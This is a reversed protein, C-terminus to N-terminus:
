QLVFRFMRENNASRVTIFYMGRQYADMNIATVENGNIANEAAMVQRGNVDTVIYSLTETAGENSIFLIGSTPNPYINLANFVNETVGSTCVTVTVLVNSTDNPCIGNGTIYDYNFQGPINGAVVTNGTIAQNSPNYWTGGLDVTGALGDLLNFAQGTCVDLTGDEGALSPGYIQVQANSTDTACGDVVVYEFNFIQYALGNTNFESANLNVTPIEEYWTGGLDNGSIGNFLDITDGVCAELVSTQAGADVSLPSLQLSFAGSSFSSESDFMLYYEAGPTLGCVTFKPAPSSLDMADDNAAILTFSNFDSCAAVSYIAVQGDFPIDTCNVTINGSTPANFKFWTSFSVTSNGWGDTTNYGTAPPAITSEGTQATAGGNNYNNVSGDVQITIADCVNDNAPPAICAITGEWGTYVVSGDSYFVFTLSGDPATSTISGPNTTFSGLFPASTSNGNYVSLNDCCTELQFSTFNVQVSSGPTGPYITYTYNEYNAYNSNGAGSDYFNGSCATTSGNGMIVCSGIPVMVPTSNVTTGALCTVACQYYTQVTQSVSYNATNAGPIATYTVGDTSSQWQYTLGSGTSSGSLSLNFPQGSCATAVSSQATGGLAPNTCPAAAGINTVSTTYCNFDTACAPGNWQVNYTGPSSPIFQFPTPGWAVATFSGDFVTIYGPVNINLEYIFAPDFGNIISYEYLYNCSSIQQTQGITTPASGSGYQASNFTCQGYSTFLLAFSGLISLLIKKM